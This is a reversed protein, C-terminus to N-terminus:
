SIFRNEGRAHRSHQQFVSLTSVDRQCKVENRLNCPPLMFNNFYHSCFYTTGRHVYSACIFGEVRAKNKILRKSDGM